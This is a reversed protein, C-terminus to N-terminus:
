LSKQPAQVERVIQGESVKANPYIAKLYPLIMEPYYLRDKERRQRDHIAWLCGPVPPTDSEVFFVLREIGSLFYWTRWADEGIERALAPPYENYARYEGPGVERSAMVCMALPLILGGDGVDETASWNGGTVPIEPSYLFWQNTRLTKLVYVGASSYPQSADLSLDPVNAALTEPSPWAGDHEPVYRECFDKVLWLVYRARDYPAGPRGILGYGRTETLQQDYNMFVRASGLVALGLVGSLVIM